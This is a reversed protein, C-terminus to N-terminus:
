APAPIEYPKCDSLPALVGDRILQLNLGIGRLEIIGNTFRFGSGSSIQYLIVREGGPMLLRAEGETIRVVLREGALLCVTTEKAAKLEEPTPKPQACAVLVMLLLVVVSAFRM